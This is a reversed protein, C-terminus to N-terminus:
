RVATSALYAAISGDPLKFYFQMYAKLDYEEVMANGVAYSYNGALDANAYNSTSFDPMPIGEPNRDRYTAVKVWPVQKMPEGTYPNTWSVPNRRGYIAIFSDLDLPAKIGMEYANGILTQTADYVVFIRSRAEDNVPIGYRERGGDPISTILDAPNVAVDNYLTQGDTTYEPNGILPHRKGDSGVSPNYGLDKEGYYQWFHFEPQVKSPFLLFIDGPSYTSTIKIDNGTYRNALIFPLAGTELLDDYTEPAKNSVLLEWGLSMSRTILSAIAIEKASVAMEGDPNVPEQIAEGLSPLTINVVQRPPSTEPPTNNQVPAPTATACSFLLIGIALLIVYHFGAAVTLLQKVKGM